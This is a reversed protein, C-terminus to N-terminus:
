LHDMRIRKEMYKVRLFMFCNEVKNNRAYELLEHIGNFNSLVTEVPMSVYLEPSALGAGHIIYDPKFNLKMKELADYQVFEVKEYNGFRRRFEEENRAGVYIKELNKGYVFLDDVISSAILGLGGTIFISKGDLESLNSSEIARKLDAKYTSSDLLKM